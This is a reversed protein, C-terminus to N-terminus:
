EMVCKWHFLFHRLQSRILDTSQLLPELQIKSRKNYKKGLWELTSDVKRFFHYNEQLYNLCWPYTGSCHKLSCERKLTETNMM